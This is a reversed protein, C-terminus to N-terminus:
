AESSIDIVTIEPPMGVRGPFGIFGFGRNVYLHQNDESYLGGWRKYRLRAPSWKIRGIEVGFQMGHTHGSLTLDIKEKGFVKEEWHTPDHSLLIRYDASETGIKAKDFDGYKVFGGMGWNEVGLIAISNQGIEVIRSENKLLTYGMERHIREVLRLNEEKEGPNEWPVYDGYDHNGLVSFKGHRAKMAAFFDIWPLAEKGFNNVLDGTFFIFDPELKNVEEILWAMEEPDTEAFSGLHTDSFQIIRLNKLKESLGVAAIKEKVFRFAYRGRAVGYVMGSLFLGSVILGTQSLFQMRTIKGDSSEAVSSPSWHHVIWRGAHIIDETLLFVSYLLKPLLLTLAAGFGFYFPRFSGSASIKQGNVVLYFLFAILAVTPLWYFWHIVSRWQTTLKATHLRVGRFVYLDVLLLFLVTFTIFFLVRPQMFPHFIRGDPAKWAFSSRPFL